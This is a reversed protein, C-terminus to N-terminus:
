SPPDFDNFPFPLDNFFSCPEGPTIPECLPVDCNGATKVTMSVLRFLKIITFLGITVGIINDPCHNRGFCPDMFNGINVSLLTTKAQVNVYPAEQYTYSGNNTFLSSTMFINQNGVGGFLVIQKEYESYACIFDKTPITGIPDTSLGIVLPTGSFGILQLKYSFTYRITVKWYGDCEFINDEAEPNPIEIGSVTICKNVLKGYKVLSAPFIIQSNPTIPTTLTTGGISVVTATEGSKSSTIPISDMGHKHECEMFDPKLCDQQRCKGYIKSAIICEDSLEHDPKVSVHELNDEM